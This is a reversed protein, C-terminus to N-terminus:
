IQPTNTLLHPMDMNMIKLDEYLTLSQLAMPCSYCLLYSPAQFILWRAMINISWVKVQWKHGEAGINNETAKSQSNSALLYKCLVKM